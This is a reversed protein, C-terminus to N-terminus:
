NVHACKTNGWTPTIWIPGPGSEEAEPQNVRGLEDPEGMFAFVRVRVRVRVCM